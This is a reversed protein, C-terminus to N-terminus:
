NKLSADPLRLGQRQHRASVCNSCHLLDNKARKLPTSRVEVNQILPLELEKERKKRKREKATQKERYRKETDLDLRPNQRISKIKANQLWSKYRSRNM